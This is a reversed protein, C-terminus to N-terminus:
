AHRRRLLLGGLALLLLSAPEPTAWVDDIKMTQGLEANEMRDIRISGLTSGIAPQDSVYSLSGLLTGNVTFYSRQAVTDIELELTNWENYNLQAPPWIYTGYGGIRAFAQSTRGQFRAFNLGAPDNFYVSYLNNPGDGETYIKLGAYIKGNADPEININNVSGVLPAANGSTIVLEGNVVDLAGATSGNWGGNGGLGGNAYDFGEFFAASAPM